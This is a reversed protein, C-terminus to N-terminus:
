KSRLIQFIILKESVVITTFKVLIGTTIWTNILAQCQSLSKTKASEPAPNQLTPDCEVFTVKVDTRM